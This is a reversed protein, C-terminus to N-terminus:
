RGPPTITRVAIQGDRGLRGQDVGNVSLRVGGADGVRLVIARDAGFTLTQNAAVEREVRRAGDVIVRMWVPRETTIRIELPRAPVAPTSDPDAAPAAAPSPDAAPPAANEAPPSAASGAPTGEQEGGGWPPALLLLLVLAAGAAGIQYRRDQWWARREKEFVDDIARYDEYMHHAPEPRSAPELRSAPPRPGAAAAAVAPAPPPAPRPLPPPEGARDATRAASQVGAPPPEQRSLAATREAQSAARNTRVFAEFEAMKQERQERARQIQDRLQELAKLAAQEDFTQRSNDM